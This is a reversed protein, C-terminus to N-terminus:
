HIFLVSLARFGIFSRYTKTYIICFDGTARFELCPSTRTHQHMSKYKYKSIFGHECHQLYRRSEFVTGDTKM